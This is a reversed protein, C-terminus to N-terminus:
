ATVLSKKAFKINLSVCRQGGEAAQRLWLRLDQHHRPEGHRRQVPHQVTEPRQPPPSLSFFTFSQEKKLAKAPGDKYAMFFVAPM